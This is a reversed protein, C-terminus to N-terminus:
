LVDFEITKIPDGIALGREYKQTSQRIQEKGNECTCYVTIKQEVIKGDANGLIIGIFRGADTCKGCAKKALLEKELAAIRLRARRLNSKAEKARLLEQNIFDSRKGTPIQEILKKVEPTQRFTIRQRSDDSETEIKM